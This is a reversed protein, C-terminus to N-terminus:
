WHKRPPFFLPTQIFNPSVPKPSPLNGGEAFFFFVDHLSSIFIRVDFVSHLNVSQLLWGEVLSAQRVIFSKSYFLAYVILM